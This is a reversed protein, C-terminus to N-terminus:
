NSAQEALSIQHKKSFVFVIAPLKEEKNLSQILKILDESNRANGSPIKNIQKVVNM